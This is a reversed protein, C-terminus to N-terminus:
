TRRPAPGGQRGTVRDTDHADDDKRAPAPPSAPSAPGAPGAPSAPAAPGSRGQVDARDEADASDQAAFAARLRSRARSLAADAGGRSIGLAEALGDGDVGEWATLLLVERDRESLTALAARVELDAVVLLEPSDRDPGEPLVEVLVPRSKRHHNAVTFAATRYLWALEHGEPVEDRRRWAVALVDATLDDADDRAARRAVYRFVSPAHERFLADFWADDRASTELTV